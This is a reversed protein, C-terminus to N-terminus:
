KNKNIEVVIHQQDGELSVGDLELPILIKNAAGMKSADVRIVIDAEEGPSITSPETRFTIYDPLNCASIKLVSSGSNGCLIRETQQKQHSLNFVVKNQKLKLTGITYRYRSWINKSPLVEGLITLKAIPHIDSISSYIFSSADITGPHNKPNYEITMVGREDTKYSLKDVDGKTCGCDTRIRTIILPQKGINKFGFKILTPKDDETMTGIRTVISDFLVIQDANELLDPNMIARIEEESMEHWEQANTQVPIFMCICCILLEISYSLKM